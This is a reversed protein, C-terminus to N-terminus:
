RALRALVVSEPQRAFLAAQKVQADTHKGGFARLYKLAAEMEPTTRLTM